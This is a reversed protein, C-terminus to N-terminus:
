SCPKWPMHTSTLYYSKPPPTVKGKGSYARPIFSIDEPQVGPARNGHKTLKRSPSAVCFRLMQSINFQM